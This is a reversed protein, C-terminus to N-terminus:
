TKFTRRYWGASKEHLGSLRFVHPISLQNWEADEPIILESGEPSNDQCFQWQILGEKSRVLSDKKSPACGQLFIVFLALGCIFFRISTFTNRMDNKREM